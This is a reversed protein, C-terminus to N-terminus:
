KGGKDADTTQPRILEFYRRIIQRHGLPVAEEELAAETLQLYKKYREAPLQPRSSGPNGDPDTLEKNDEPTTPGQDAKGQLPPQQARGDQPRKTNRDPAPRGPNPQQATQPQPQQGANPPPQSFLNRQHNECRSKCDRLRQEEKALLQHIRKRREQRRIEETLDKSGDKFQKEDQKKMGDGLKQTAQSLKDKKHQEMKKALQQLKEGAAKAEKPDVKSETAQAMEKAAKELKGNQLAKGAETLPKAEQMAQGLEKLQEDVRPVDLEKRVKELAAQMQSMKAMAERVDVGPQKMEELLKRLEAALKKLEPSNEAEALAEIERVQEEIRAAEDLVIQPPPLPAATLPAPPLPWLLLVLAGIGTLAAVTAQRSWGLPIAQKLPLSHLAAVTERLLLIHFSTPEAGRCVELATATREQLHFHHDVLRAADALTLRKYWGWVSGGGLGVLLCGLALPWWLPQGTLRYAVALPAALLAGLFLGYVASRGMAQWRQRQRVPELLAELPAGMAAEELCLHLSYGMM